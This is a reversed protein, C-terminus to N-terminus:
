APWSVSSPSSTTSPVAGRDASDDRLHRDFWAVMEGLYDPPDVAGPFGPGHRGGEIKILKAAVGVGQLAEYLVESNRVPVVEDADGHLLLFPPATPSVYRIPSAQEFLRYEPSGPAARVLSAGLYATLAGAGDAPSMANVLDIPAARAVVCQVRGSLRGIPDSDDQDGTGDLLGLLSVLHGGSSGGVAGVRESQIGYRAANARVWRVARQADDIAAPHRFRPSSRHNIAFVTYGATTLPPAYMHTQVSDKLQDADLGLPARWGSGNILVVGFGNPREPRHADLLLATGSYMGYVINREVVGGTAVKALQPTTQSDM